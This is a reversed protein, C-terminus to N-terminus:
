KLHISESGTSIAKARGSIPFQHIRGVGDFGQVYLQALDNVGPSRKWTFPRRQLQEVHRQFVDGVPLSVSHLM